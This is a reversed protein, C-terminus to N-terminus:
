CRPRRAGAHGDREKSLQGRPLLPSDAEAQGWAAPEDGCYHTPDGTGPAPGPHPCRGEPGEWADSQGGSGEEFRLCRRTGLHAPCDGKCLFSLCLACIGPGGRPGGKLGRGAGLQPGLRWFGWPGAQAEEPHTHALGTHALGGCGPGQACLLRPGAQPSGAGGQCSGQNESHFPADEWWSWGEDQSCVGRVPVPKVRKGNKLKLYVQLKLFLLDEGDTSM